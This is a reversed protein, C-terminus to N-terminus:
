RSRCRHAYGDTTFAFLPALSLSRRRFRFRAAGIPAAGGRGFPSAFVFVARRLGRGAAFTILSGDGCPTAGRKRSYVGPPMIDTHHPPTTGGRRFLFELGAALPCLRIPTAALQHPQTRECPHYPPQVSGDTRPKRRPLLALLVFRDGNVIFALLEGEFAFVFMPKPLQLM